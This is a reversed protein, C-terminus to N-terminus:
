GENGQLSRHVAVLAKVVVNVPSPLSQTQSRNSVLASASALALFSASGPSVKVTSSYPSDQGCHMFNMFITEPRSLLSALVYFRGKKFRPTRSQM